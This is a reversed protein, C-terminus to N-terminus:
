ASCGPVSGVSLRKAKFGSANPYERPESSPQSTALGDQGPAELAKAPVLERGSIGNTINALSRTFYDSPDAARVPIYFLGCVAILVGYLLGLVAQPRVIAVAIVTSPVPSVHLLIHASLAIGAISATLVVQGPKWQTNTTSTSFQHSNV